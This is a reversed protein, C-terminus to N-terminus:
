VGELDIGDEELQATLVALQKKMAAMRAVKKRTAEDGFKEIRGAKAELEAAKKLMIAARIKSTFAQFRLHTQLNAFDTKKLGNHKRSNFGGYTVKGAEDKIPLPVAILLKDDNIATVVNGEADTYVADDMPFDIRTVKEKKTDTTTATGTETDPNVKKAM